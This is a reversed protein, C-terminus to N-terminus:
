DVVNPLPGVRDDDNCPDYLPMRWPPFGCFPFRHARFDVGGFVGNILRLVAASM